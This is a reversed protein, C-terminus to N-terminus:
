GIGALHRIGAASLEMKHLFGVAPSEAILDLYDDRAHTSIMILTAAHGNEALRRATDFGSEHGLRIDILVVDPQLAKVAQCAEASTIAVGAVSVGGHELVDRAAELFALDDDVIVCQLRV